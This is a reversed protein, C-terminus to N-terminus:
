TDCSLLGTRQAGSVRRQTGHRFDRPSCGYEDRFARAFVTPDSFCYRAAVVAIPRDPFAVLDTRAEELRRHRIWRALSRPQDAFLRYLSRLSLHCARAIMGPCLGPDDLKLEILDLVQRVLDSPARLDVAALVLEAVRDAVRLGESGGLPGSRTLETLATRAVLASAGDHAPLATLAPLRRPDVPVADRRWTFVNMRWDGAMTWTFPRTTDYVVFSGPPVRAVRGDQDLQVEGARVLAVQLRDEGHRAILGPTRHFTQAVSRVDAVLLPGVAHSAVHGRVAPGNGPRIDLAVFRDRILDRWGPLGEVRQEM